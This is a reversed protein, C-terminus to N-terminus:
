QGPKLQMWKNFNVGLQLLYSAPLARNKSIYAALQTPDTPVPPPNTNVWTFNHTSYLKGNSGEMVGVMTRGYAKQTAQKVADGWTLKKDTTYLSSATAAIFNTAVSREGDNKVEKGKVLTYTDPSLNNLISDSKVAGEMSFMAEQPDIKPREDRSSNVANLNNYYHARAVASATQARYYRTVQFNKATLDSINQKLIAAKYTDGSRLAAQYADITKTLETSNAQIKADGLKISEIHNQFDKENLFSTPPLPHLGGYENQITSWNKSYSPLTPYLSYLNRMGSATMALQKSSTAVAVLSHQEFTAPDLAKAAAMKEPSGSYIAEDMVKGNKENTAAQNMAQLKLSNMQTAQQQQQRAIPAEKLANETAIGQQMGSMFPNQNAAASRNLGAYPNPPRSVGDRSLMMMEFYPDM